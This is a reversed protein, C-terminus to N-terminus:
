HRARFVWLANAAYSGAFVIATSLVAAVLYNIGALEVLAIMLGLNAAVGVVLSLLYQALQGVAAPRQNRFSFVKHLFYSLPTLFAFSAVASILYHAHLLSTGVYLIVFNMLACLTGVGGFRAMGGAHSRWPSASM